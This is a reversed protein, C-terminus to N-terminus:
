CSTSTDVLSYMTLSFSCGAFQFMKTAPPFSLLLTNGLYLRNFPSSGTGDFSNCIRIITLYHPFVLWLLHYDQLRFLLFEPVLTPRPM